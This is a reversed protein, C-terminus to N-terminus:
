KGRAKMFYVDLTKQGQPLLRHTKGTMKLWIEKLKKYDRPAKERIYELYGDLWPAYRKRTAILIYYLIGYLYRVEVFEVRGYGLRERFMWEYAELVAKSEKERAPDCLSRAYEPAKKCFEKGFISEVRRILNREKRLQTLGRAIDITFVTMVIDARKKKTFAHLANFGLLTDFSGFPDIFLYVLSDSEVNIRSLAHNADDKIITVREVKGVLKSLVHIAVPDRDIFYLRDFGSVIKRYQPLDPQSAVVSPWYLAILPSGLVIEDEEPGVRALGPGSHTDIYITNKFNAKGIQLFMPIYMAHYFLKTISWYHEKIGQYIRSLLTEVTTKSKEDLSDLLDLAQEHMIHLYHTFREYDKPRPYQLPQKRGRQM